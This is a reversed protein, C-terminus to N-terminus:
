EWAAQFGSKGLNQPTISISFAFAGRSPMPFFSNNEELTIKTLYTLLNYLENTEVGKKQRLICYEFVIKFNRSFHNRVISLSFKIYRGREIYRKKREKKKNREKKKKKKSISFCTEDSLSGHPM